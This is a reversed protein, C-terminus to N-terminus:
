AADPHMQELRDLQKNAEKEVEKPMKAKKIKKKLDIIEKTREDADGLENKIARLQERLFYDRQTKTMEEKAQSQIKAQMSSLEVEKSLLENVKILRDIPNFIELVQQAEEIKLNLNSGVLDALRGPDEINNLVMLVDSSLLGRLSLVKESHEKVSRMLAEAELPLEPMIPEKIKEINVMYCPKQQTYEIIRGRMLGQVLIKVRGDPLKLMRMVTAVTGVSYIGDPKPDEVTPDKQTALFILRDKSLAEDVAKISGERGVFLPLIMYSFIVVDRVPLLPLTNPIEVDERKIDYDM